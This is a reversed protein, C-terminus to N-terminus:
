GTPQATWSRFLLEANELDRWTLKSAALHVNVNHRVFMRRFATDFNALHDDSYLRRGPGRRLGVLVFAKASTPPAHLLKEADRIWRRMSESPKSQYGPADAEGRKIEIWWQRKRTFAVLDVEHQGARSDVDVYAREIAVPAAGADVLCRYLRSRIQEEKPLREQPGTSAVAALEDGIAQFASSWFPDHGISM